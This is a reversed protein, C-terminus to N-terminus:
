GSSWRTSAWTARKPRRRGATWWCPTRASNRARPMWPTKWAHAFYSKIKM